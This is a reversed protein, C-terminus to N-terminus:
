IHYVRQNHANEKEDLICLTGFIHGDPWTLPLGCYSIMGLKIDPNHDWDPDKLAM